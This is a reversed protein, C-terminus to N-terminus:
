APGTRAYYLWQDARETQFGLKRALNASATNDAFCSWCPPQGAAECLRMLHQCAIFAYSRGRHAEATVIGIEFRGAGRCVAYAESRIEDGAMLCLGIGQRLFNEATGSATVMDDHWMCRAFLGGDVLQLRHGAPLPAVPPPRRDRFELGGQVKDPLVPPEGQTTADAPWNLHVDQTRRLTSIAQALWASDPASGQYRGPFAFNLFNTALLCQTPEGADNVYARAPTRGDLASFIMTAHLPDPGFLPALRGFQAQPFEFM